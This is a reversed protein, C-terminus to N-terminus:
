RPLKNGYLAISVSLEADEPNVCRLLSGTSPRQVVAAGAPDELCFGETFPLYVWEGTVGMAQILALTLHRWIHTHFTSLFRLSSLTLEGFIPSMPSYAIFKRNGKSFKGQTAVVLSM